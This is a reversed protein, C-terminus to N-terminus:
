HANDAAGLSAGADAWRLALILVVGVTMAGAALLLGQAYTGKGGALWGILAPAAASHSGWARVM